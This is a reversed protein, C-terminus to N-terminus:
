RVLTVSGTYEKPEGKFNVVKIMYVYVDQQCDTGGNEMKGNWGEEIDNSFFVKKGWRDFIFLQLNTVGIGKVNFYDNHGDNNPTFANPIYISFDQEIIVQEYITDTCTHLNEVILRVEFTGTDRYLYSPNRQSSTGYNDGFNWDYFNAGTSKDTFTIYPHLISTKSPDASFAAVPLGYAHIASKKTMSSICGEDSTVQLSVDFVGAEYYTHEPSKLTDNSNDGFSWLYFAKQSTITLNKFNVVLPICGEAPLIEFDVVPLANVIVTVSTQAVPTGCNDSATVTYTTTLQPSVVVSAANGANNSWSYAYPGGNGGSAQAWIAANEGECIKVDASAVVGLAPFVTILVTKKTTTCNNADTVNVTYTTTVPPAVFQSQNTSGNSWTFNYNGTGGV